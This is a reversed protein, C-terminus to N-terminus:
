DDASTKTCVWGWNELKAALFDAKEECYGVTAQANWPYQIQQDDSKEYKVRCPVQWGKHEYEVSIKRLENGSRCEYVDKAFVPMSIFIAFATLARTM